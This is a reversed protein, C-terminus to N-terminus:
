FVLHLYFVSDLDDVLNNLDIGLHSVLSDRLNSDDKKKKLDTKHQLAFLLCYVTMKVETGIDGNM